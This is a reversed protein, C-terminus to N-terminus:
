EKPKINGSVFYMAVFLNRYDVSCLPLKGDIRNNRNDGDINMSVRIDFCEFRIIM